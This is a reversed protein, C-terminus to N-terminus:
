RFDRNDRARLAIFIKKGHRLTYRFFRLLAIFKKTSPAQEFPSLKKKEHTASTASTASTAREFPSSNKKTRRAQRASLRASFNKKTGGRGNTTRELREFKKQEQLTWLKKFDQSLTVSPFPKTVGSKETFTM